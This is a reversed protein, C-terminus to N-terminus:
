SGSTAEPFGADLLVKALDEIHRESYKLTCPRHRTSAVGVLLAYKQAKNPEDARARRSAPVFSWCSMAIALVSALALTRTSLIQTLM